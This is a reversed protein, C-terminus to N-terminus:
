AFIVKRPLSGIRRLVRRALGLPRRGTVHDCFDIAALLPEVHAPSLPEVATTVLVLPPLHGDLADELAKGLRTKGKEFAVVRTQVERGAAALADAIPAIVPRASVESLETIQVIRVGAGPLPQRHFHAYFPDHEDFAEDTSM